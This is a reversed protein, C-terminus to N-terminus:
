RLYIEGYRTVLRDDDELDRPDVPGDPSGYFIHLEEELAANLSAETYAVILSDADSDGPREVTAVFVFPRDAKLRALATILWLAAAPDVGIDGALRAVTQAPQEGMQESLRLINAAFDILLQLPNM